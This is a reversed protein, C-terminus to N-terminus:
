CDTMQLGTFADMRISAGGLKLLQTERIYWTQETTGPERFRIYGGRGRPSKCGTSRNIYICISGRRGNKAGSRNSRRCDAWTLALDLSKKDTILRYGRSLIDPLISRCGGKPIIRYMNLDRFNLGILSFNAAHIVDFWNFYM